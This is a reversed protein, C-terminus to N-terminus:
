SPESKHCSATSSSVVPCKLFHNYIMPDDAEFKEYNGMDAEFLINNIAHEVIAQTRTSYMRLKNAVHEGYTSFRDQMLQARAYSYMHADQLADFSQDVRRGDQSLKRKRSRKSGRTEKGLVNCDDTEDVTLNSQDNDLLMVHSDDPTEIITTPEHFYEDSLPSSPGSENTLDSNGAEAHIHNRPEDKDLLFHMREFAFWKSIYVDRKNAGTGISKKGKSKQARFSGLLSVMKQRVVKMDLNMSQAIAEWADLKKKKSYYYYHKPDWLVPHREYLDILLLCMDMSWDCM